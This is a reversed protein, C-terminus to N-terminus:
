NIIAKFQGHNVAAENTFPNVVLQNIYCTVQSRLLQQLTDNDAINYLDCNGSFFLSTYLYERQKYHNM